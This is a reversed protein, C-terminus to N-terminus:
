PKQASPADPAPEACSNFIMDKNRGFNVFGVSAVGWYEIRSHTGGHICLVSEEYQESWQKDLDLEIIDGTSLSPCPRPQVEKQGFHFIRDLLYTKGDFGLHGALTLESMPVDVERITARSGNWFQFVRFTMVSM